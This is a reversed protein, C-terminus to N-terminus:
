SVRLTHLHIQPILHGAWFNCSRLLRFQVVLPEAKLRTGTARRDRMLVLSSSSTSQLTITGTVSGVSHTDLMSAMTLGFLTQMQM